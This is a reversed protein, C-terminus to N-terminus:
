MEDVTGFLYSGVLCPTYSSFPCTDSVRTLALVLGQHNRPTPNLSLKGLSTVDLHCAGLGVSALFLRHLALSRHGPEHQPCTPLWTQLLPAAPPMRARGRGGSDRIMVATTELSLGLCAAALVFGLIFGLTGPRPASLFLWCYATGNRDLPSPPM